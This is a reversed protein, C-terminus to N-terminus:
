EGGYEEKMKRTKEKGNTRDSLQMKALQTFDKYVAM